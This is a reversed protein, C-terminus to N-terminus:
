LDLQSLDKPQLWRVKTAILRKRGEPEADDCVILALDVDLKRTTRLADTALDPTLREPVWAIVRQPDGDAREAALDIAHGQPRLMVDFGCDRLRVQLAALAPPASEQGPAVEAAAIAAEDAVDDEITRLPAYAVRESKPKGAGQRAAIQAAMDHRAKADAAHKRLDQFFLAADIRVEDANAVLYVARVGNLRGTDLDSGLAAAWHDLDADAVEQVSPHGVRLALRLVKRPDGPARYTLHAGPALRTRLQTCQEHDFRVRQAMLELFPHVPVALTKDDGVLLAATMGNTDSPALHEVAAELDNVVDPEGRPVRVVLIREGAGDWVQAGYQRALSAKLRELEAGPLPLTSTRRTTPM